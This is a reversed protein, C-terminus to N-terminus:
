GAHQPRDGEVLVRHLVRRGPWPDRVAFHATCREDWVIVDDTEWRWRCTYNPNTAHRELVGLLADSELSTMGAIPSSTSVAFLASRGTEPHRRVVPQHVNALERQWVEIAADGYQKSKLKLLVDGVSHVTELGLLRAQFLASLDDWARYLNAWMTDGGYPPALRCQLIGFAPPNPTYQVDLHWTDTQADHDSTRDNVGVTPITAGMLRDMPHIYPDGLMGAFSVLEDDTLPQNRFAVVLHQLLASRIEQRQTTGVEGRLDVGDIVAGLAAGFPTVKITEYRDDFTTEM